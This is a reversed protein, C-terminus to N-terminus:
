SHYYRIAILILSVSLVLLTWWRQRYKRSQYTESTEIGTMTARRTQKEATGSSMVKDAAEQTM